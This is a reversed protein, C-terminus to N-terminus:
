CFLESAADLWIHIKGMVGAPKAKFFCVSDHKEERYNILSAAMLSAQKTAISRLVTRIKENKKM